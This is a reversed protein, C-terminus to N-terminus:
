ILFSSMFSCLLFAGQNEVNPILFVSYPSTNVQAPKIYTQYEKLNATSAEGHSRLIERRAKFARDSNRCAMIVIAGRLALEITTELGVGSNAGTVVALKDDLRKTSACMAYRTMNALIPYCVFHLFSFLSTSSSTGLVSVCSFM